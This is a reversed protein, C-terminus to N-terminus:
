AEKQINTKPTPVNLLIILQHHTEDNYTKITADRIQKHPHTKLAAALATICTNIDPTQSYPLIYGGTFKANKHQGRALYIYSTETIIVHNARAITQWEKPERWDFRSALRGGHPYYLKPRVRIVDMIETEYKNPDKERVSLVVRNDQEIKILVNKSITM